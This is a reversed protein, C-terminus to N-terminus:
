SSIHVACVHVKAFKQPDAAKWEREEKGNKGEKGVKRGEGKRGTIEVGEAM